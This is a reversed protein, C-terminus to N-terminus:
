RQGYREALAYSAHQEIPVPDDPGTWFAGVYKIVLGLM